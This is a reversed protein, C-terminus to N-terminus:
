CFCDGTFMFYKVNQLIDNLNIFYYWIIIRTKLTGAKMESTIAQNIKM